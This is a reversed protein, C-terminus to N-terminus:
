VLVRRDHCRIKGCTIRSVLSACVAYSRAFAKRRQQPDVLNHRVLTRYISSRSPVPVVGERELHYAITRSVGGRILGREVARTLIRSLYVWKIASTPNWGFLM